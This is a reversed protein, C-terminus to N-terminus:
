VYSDNPEHVDLNYEDCLALFACFPMLKYRDLLDGYISLFEPGHDELIRGYLETAIWHGLEHVLTGLNDGHFGSNLEINTDSCWGFCHRKDKVFLLKPKKVKYKNCAHVVVAKLHEHNCHTHITTGIIQREM